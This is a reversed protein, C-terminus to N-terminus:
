IIAKNKTKGYSYISLLIEIEKTQLDPFYAKVLEKIKIRSLTMFQEHYM